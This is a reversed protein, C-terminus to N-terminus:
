PKLYLFSKPESSRSDDFMEPRWPEITGGKPFKNLRKASYNYAERGYVGTKRESPGYLVILPKLFLINVSSVLRVSSDYIDVCLLFM